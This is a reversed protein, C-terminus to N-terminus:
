EHRAGIEREIEYGSVISQFHNWGSRVVQILHILFFLLYGITLAFHILRASEYGGLLETLWGLQVPKYIALGTIVSAAGMLVIATYAIQQAANYKQQAPLQKRVGLDYLLVHWADRFASPSRPVLYRWEGSWWTYAVYLIGNGTFFWMFLFHLNMGFALKFDLHFFRYVFTPFFHFPGISYADYAWYILLGSWIMVFLLPFNIWHFWRVALLHKLKVNTM